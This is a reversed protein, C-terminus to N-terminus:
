EGAHPPLLRSTQGVRHQLRLLALAKGVMIAVAGHLKQFLRYGKRGLMELSRKTPAVWGNLLNQSSPLPIVTHSLLTLALFPRRLLGM